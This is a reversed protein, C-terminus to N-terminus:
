STSMAALSQTLLDEGHELHEVIEREALDADLRTFGAGRATRYARWGGCSRAPKLASPLSRVLLAADTSFFCLPAPSRNLALCRGFCIAAGRDGRGAPPPSPTSSGHPM